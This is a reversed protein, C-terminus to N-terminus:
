IKENKIIAFAIAFDCAGFFLSSPREFYIGIGTAMIGFAIMDAAMFVPCLLHM